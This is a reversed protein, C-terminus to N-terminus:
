GCKQIYVVLWKDYNSLEAILTATGALEQNVSIRRHRSRIIFESGEKSFNWQHLGVWNENTAENPVHQLIIYGSPRTVAVMQRIAEMPDYSHDISNRAHVIDFSDRDFVKSLKEAEAFVTKIPPAYGHIAAIRAYEDALPDVPVIEIAKTPLGLSLSTLPGAGVDLIRVKFDKFREVVKAVHYDLPRSTDFRANFESKWYLGKTQFYRDWFDLEHGRGLLWRIKVPLPLQPIRATILSAVAWFGGRKYHGVIKRPLSLIHM